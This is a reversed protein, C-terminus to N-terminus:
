REASPTGTTLTGPQEGTPSLKVSVTAATSSNRCFRAGTGFNSSSPRGAQSNV